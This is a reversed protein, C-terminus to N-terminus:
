MTQYIAKVVSQADYYNGDEPVEGKGMLIELSHSHSTQSRGADFDMSAYTAYSTPRVSRSCSILGCRDEVYYAREIGFGSRVPAETETTATERDVIQFWDNGEALTLEAARLLAFDRTDQLSARRNGTFNVRYRNEGIKYSYHGYQTAKDAAVYKPSSACAGLTFLAVILVIRTIFMVHEKASNM